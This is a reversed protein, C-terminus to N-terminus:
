TDTIRAKFLRRSQQRSRSRSGWGRRDIKIRSSQPSGGGGGWVHHGPQICKFKARRSKRKDTTQSPMSISFCTQNPYGCFIKTLIVCSPDVSQTRTASNGDEVTTAHGFLTFVTKIRFSWWTHEDAQQHDTPFVKHNHPSLLIISSHGGGEGGGRSWVSPGWGWKGKRRIARGVGEDM